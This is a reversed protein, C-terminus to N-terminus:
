KNKAFMRIASTYYLLTGHRALDTTTLSLAKNPLWFYIHNTIFMARSSTPPKILQFDSQEASREVKVIFVAKKEGAGYQRKSYKARSVRKKRSQKTTNIEFSGM